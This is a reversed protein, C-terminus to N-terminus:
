FNTMGSKIGAHAPMYCPQCSPTKGVQPLLSDGACCWWVRITLAWSGTFTWCPKTIWWPETLIAGNLALGSNSFKQRARTPSTQPQPQGSPLKKRHIMCALTCHLRVGVRAYRRMWTKTELAFNLSLLNDSTIFTKPAATRWLRVEKEWRLRPFHKTELTSVFSLLNDSTFLM